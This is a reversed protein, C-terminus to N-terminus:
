IELFLRIVWNYGIVYLFFDGLLKERLFFFM